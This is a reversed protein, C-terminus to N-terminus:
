WFFGKSLYRVQTPVSRCIGGLPLLQYYQHHLTNTLVDFPASLTGLGFGVKPWFQRHVLFWLYRRSLKSNKSDDIWAQAKDLIRMLAKALDGSPCTMSALTKSAEDVGLHVIAAMPNDPQPVWIQFEERHKNAAYAWTGGPKWVFLILHYFCKAPKLLGGMAILLNDWSSVSDQLSRHAEEITEITDMQLHIMDTDDMYLIAVLASRTGLIPCRFTTSHGQKTHVRLIIISVVAWGAFAAVRGQCLCQTTIEIRIGAASKSDGFATHLFFSFIKYQRFCRVM